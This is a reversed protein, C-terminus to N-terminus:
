LKWGLFHLFLAFNNMDSVRRNWVKLSTYFPNGSLVTDGYEKDMGVYFDFAVISILLSEWMKISGKVHGRLPWTDYYFSTVEGDGLPLRKLSQLAMLKGPEVKKGILTKRKAISVDMTRHVEPRVTVLLADGPRYDPLRSPLMEGYVSQRRDIWDESYAEVPLAATPIVVAYCGCTNVLTVLLPIHKESLTVVVLQGVNSGAEFHFPILSFPTKQFHVRYVLNTYSGRQTSFSFTDGYVIAQDPDISIKEFGDIQEAIVKGIRNYSKQWGPLVFVPAFISMLDDPSTGDVVVYQSDTLQLTNKHTACGSLSLCLFGVLLPTSLRSGYESLVTQLWIGHFKKM